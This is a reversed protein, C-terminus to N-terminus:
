FTSQVMKEWVEKPYTVEVSSFFEYPPTLVDYSPPEEYMVDRRPAGVVRVRYYLEGRVDFRLKPLESGRHEEIYVLAPLINMWLLDAKDAVRETSTVGFYVSDDRVRGLEVGAGLQNSSFIVARLTKLVPCPQKRDNWMLSVAAPIILNVGAATRIIELSPPSEDFIVAGVIVDRIKLEVKKEAM